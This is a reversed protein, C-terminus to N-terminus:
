PYLLGLTTLFDGKGLLKINPFILPPGYTTFIPFIFGLLLFIGIWTFAGRLQEQFDTVSIGM